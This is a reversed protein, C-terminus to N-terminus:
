VPSLSQNAMAPRSSHPQKHSHSRPTQGGGGSGGGHRAHWRCCRTEGRGSQVGQRPSRPGGSILRRANSPINGKSWWRPPPTAPLRHLRDTQERQYRSSIGNFHAVSGPLLIMQQNKNLYVSFCWGSISNSRFNALFNVLLRTGIYRFCLWSLNRTKLRWQIKQLRIEVCCSLDSNESSQPDLAGALFQPPLISGFVFFFICIGSKTNIATITILDINSFDMKINWRESSIEIILCKCPKSILHFWTINVRRIGLLFFSFSLLFLLCSHFLQSKKSRFHGFNLDPMKNNILNM